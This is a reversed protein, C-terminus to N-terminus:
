RGTGIEYRTSYALATGIPPGLIRVEFYERKGKRWSLGVDGVGAPEAPLSTWGRGALAQSYWDALLAPSTDTRLITDVKAPGSGFDVSADQGRTSVVASGPYFLTAPARARLDAARVPRHDPLGDSGRSYEATYALFGYAGGLGALLLAVLAGVVVRRRTFFGQPVVEDDWDAGVLRAVFAEKGELYAREGAVDDVLRKKLDGYARRAAPDTRLRDRIALDRRWFASGPYTLSLHCVVSGEDRLLYSQRGPLDGAISRQFGAAELTSRLEYARSYDSVSANLDIIPRAVLEPVATGGVHEVATVSTSIAGLVRERLEAFREPWAADYECLAISRVASM